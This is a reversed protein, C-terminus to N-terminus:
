PMSTRYIRNVTISKPPMAHYVCRPKGIEAVTRGCNVLIRPVCKLASNPLFIFDLGLLKVDLTGRNAAGYPIKKIRSEVLTFSIRPSNSIGLSVVM